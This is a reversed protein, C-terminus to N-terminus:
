FTVQVKKEHTPSAQAAFNCFASADGPLSFSSFSPSNLCFFSPPHFTALNDLYCARRTEPDIPSPHLERSIAAFWDRERGGAGISGPGRPWYIVHSISCLEARPSLHRRLVPQNSRPNAATLLRHEERGLGEGAQEGKGSSVSSDTHATSKGQRWPADVM